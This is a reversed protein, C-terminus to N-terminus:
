GGGRPSLRKRTKPAPRAPSPGVLSLRFGTVLAKTCERRGHTVLHRSAQGPRCGMHSRGAEFCGHTARVQSLPERGGSFSRGLEPEVGRHASNELKSEM